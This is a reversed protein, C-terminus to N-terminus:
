INETSLWLHTMQTYCQAPLFAAELNQNVNRVHKGETGGKWRHSHQGDDQALAHWLCFM